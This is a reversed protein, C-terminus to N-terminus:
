VIRHPRLNRACLMKNTSGGIFGANMRAKPKPAQQRRVHTEMLGDRGRNRLIHKIQKVRMKKRRVGM